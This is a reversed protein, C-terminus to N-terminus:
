YKKWAIELEKETFDEGTWYEKIKLHQTLYIKPVGGMTILVFDRKNFLTYKLNFKSQVKFTELDSKNGNLYTLIQWDPNNKQIISLKRATHICHQCTLSFFALFQKSGSPKLTDKQHIIPPFVEPNIINKELKAKPESLYFDEPIRFAFISSIIIICSFSVYLKNLKFNLYQKSFKYSILLLAILTINKFVSQVNTM